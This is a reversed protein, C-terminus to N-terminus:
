LSSRSLQHLAIEPDSQATGKAAHGAVPARAHDCNQDTLRERASGKDDVYDPGEDNTEEGRNCSRIAPQKNPRERALEDHDSQATSVCRKRM